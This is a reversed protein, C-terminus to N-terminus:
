KKLYTKIAKNGRRKAWRQNCMHEVMLHKGMPLQTM